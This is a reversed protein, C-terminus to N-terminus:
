SARMRLVVQPVLAVPQDAVGIHREDERPVYHWVGAAEAVGAAVTRVGDIEGGLVRGFHARAFHASLTKM